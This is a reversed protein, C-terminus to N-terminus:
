LLKKKVLRLFLAGIDGVKRFCVSDKNLKDKKHNGKNHNDKDDNDKDEKDKYDKEKVNKDSVDDQDKYLFDESQVTSFEPSSVFQM